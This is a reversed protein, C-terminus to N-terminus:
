AAFELLDAERDNRLHVLNQNKQPAVATLVPLVIPESPLIQPLGYAQAAGYNVRWGLDRLSSLTLASVPMVTGNPEIFPTLLEQKFVSESWHAYVEDIPVAVGQEVQGLLEGYAFGAYTNGNYTQTTRNVLSRGITQNLTPFMIPEWITGFGLTHAFEHLMVSRLYNPDSNFLDFRVTNLIAEGGVLFLSGNSTSVLPTGSALNSVVDAAGLINITLDKFQTIASREPIVEEWFRAASAIADRASQNLTETGVGFNLILKFKNIDTLAPIFNSSLSYLGTQPGKVRILYNGPGIFRRLSERTTGREWQWALISEGGDVLGNGNSDQVLQVDMDGTLGTLNATFVGTQNVNFAYSRDPTQDTLQDRKFFRASTNPAIPLVQDPTGITLSTLAPAAVQTRPVLGVIDWALDITAISYRDLTVARDMLLLSAEGTKNNRLVIDPLKDNNFDATGIATGGGSDPEISFSRSSNQLGDMVWWVMQKTTRNSWFIDLQGDQDVDGVGKIEWDKNVPDLPTIIRSEKYELGQMLWWVNIGNTPNRWLLDQEGDGNVDGVGVINWTTDEVTRLTVGKLIGGQGNMQWCVDQGTVSNRWFIDAIGDKNTDGTGVVNWNADMVDPLKTSATAVTDKMEWLYNNGFGSSATQRNRWLLDIQTTTLRAPPNVASTAPPTLDTNLPLTM